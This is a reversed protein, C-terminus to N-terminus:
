YDRELKLLLNSHYKIPLSDSTVHDFMSLFSQMEEVSINYRELMFGNWKEDSIYGDKSQVVQWPALVEAPPVNKNEGVCRMVINHFATYFWNVRMDGYGSWQSHLALRANELKSKKYTTNYDTLTKGFKLIFSPLRVWMYKDETNRLFVGKLFTSGELRRVQPKAVLGFKAYGEAWDGGDLVHEYVVATTVANIISNDLCTAPEGTYRMQVRKGKDDVFRPLSKSIKRLRMKLQRSYMKKRNEKLKPFDILLDNVLDRLEDCQTRDFRSFDNELCMGEPLILNTDDGMLLQGVAGSEVCVNVFWNIYKSTAGCTFYPIIVGLRGNGTYSWAESLWTSIESTIQGMQYFEIGSLNVIVRPVMKEKACVVEDSKIQSRIYRKKPEAGEELAQQAQLMNKRQRSSLGKFFDQPDMEVRSLKPLYHQLMKRAANMFIPDVESNEYKNIRSFIAASCNEYSNAPKVMHSVGYFFCFFGEHERVDVRPYLNDVTRVNFEEGQILKPLRASPMKPDVNEEVIEPFNITPNLTEVYYAYRDTLTSSNLALHSRVRTFFGQNRSKKHWNYTRWNGYILREIAAVIWWGFPLIKIIEELYASFKPFMPLIAHYNNKAAMNRYYGFSSIAAVGALIV